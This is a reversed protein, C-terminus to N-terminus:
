SICCDFIMVVLTVLFYFFVCFCILQLIALVCCDFIMVVWTMLLLFCLFFMLQLISICLVCPFVCGFIMVVLTVLLYFCVCVCENYYPWSIFYDSIM